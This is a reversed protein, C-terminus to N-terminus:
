KSLMYEILNKVINLEKASLEMLNEAITNIEDKPTNQGTLIYDASVQLAECVKALNEPRIAKKGLELNSIMQTSVDIKEALTEQTFCLAKRRATIRKGMKKLFDTESM